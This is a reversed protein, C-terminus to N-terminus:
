EDEPATKSVRPDRSWESAAYGAALVIAALALGLGALLVSRALILLIGAMLLGGRELWGLRHILHGEIAGAIAVLGLVVTSLTVVIQFPTGDFLLGPQYVFLIPLFFLGSGKLVASWGTAWIGARAITSAVYSALAVPPTINSAQGWWMVLLHAALIPVDLRILAPAALTALIVYAPVVSLGMGLIYAVFFIFLLTLALDGGAASIIMGTIQLGTGPLLLAQAIISVAGAIVIIPLAGRAGEAMSEIIARPGMGAGRKFWSIVVVTVIALFAIRHLSYAQVVLVIVVVIPVLYFWGSRFTPWVPPCQSRPLGMLNHRRAYFHVQLYVNLFYLLAPVASYMVIEYYPIGTLAVMIFAAVGMVPPLITGGTSAAAETGGAVHPKYGSRIMMPITVTGTVGVNAAASGTISGILASSAVSAKATGGARHGLLATSMDSFFESAGSRILFQGFVLFLFMHIALIYTISGYLGDTSAYMYSAITDADFGSHRFDGPVYQGFYLFLLGLGALIPIIWGLVRRCAEMSLLTMIWGTWVDVPSLPLGINQLFTDYQLNFRLTGFTAAALLIVDVIRALISKGLPKLMLALVIGAFIFLSRDLEPAFVGIIAVYMYYASVCAGFALAPREWPQTFRELLASHNM